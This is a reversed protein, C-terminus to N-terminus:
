RKVRHGAATIAIVAKELDAEKVFVYDTDYTSISFISVKADALPKTVSVLIGILSFDLPGEIKFIRWGTECKTGAPAAAEVCVVSLEDTTRTVSSFGQANAAWVPTKEAAGLRCVSYRGELLRLNLHPTQQAVGIGIMGLLAWIALISPSGFNLMM